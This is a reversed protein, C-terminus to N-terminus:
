NPRLVLHCVHREVSRGLYRLVTNLRHNPRLAPWRVQECQSGCESSLHEKPIIYNVIGGKGRQEWLLDHSSRRCQCGVTAGVLLWAGVHWGQCGVTAGVFLGAGVHLGVLAM